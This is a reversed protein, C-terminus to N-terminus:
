GNSIEWALEFEGLMGAVLISDFSNKISKFSIDSQTVLIALGATLGLTILGLPTFLTAVLSLLTSVTSLAGGLLIFAIGLGTVGAVTGLLMLSVQQNKSVWRTMGDLLDRLSVSSSLIPKELGEIVAIELGKLASITLRYAGGLGSDMTEATKKAIGDVDNLVERFQAFQEVARSIVKAPVVARVGFLQAFLRTRQQRTLGETAKALEFLLIPLEKMEGAQPGTRQFFDVFQGNTKQLEKNFKGFQTTSRLFINRLATGAEAAEITVNAMVSMLGVTDEFSLNFDSAIPGAKQMAEILTQLRLNSNNVAATYVNTIRNVDEISTGLEDFQLITASVLRAADMTDQSGLGEGAARALSLIQETINRIQPRSFGRQALVAQLQAVQGATFSTTRGLFKAQERLKSLDATTGESRAQVKKMADDFEVFTRGALGFAGFGLLGRQFLSRGISKIRGAFQDFRKAVRNLAQSTADVGEIIVFAKGAKIGSVSTAM